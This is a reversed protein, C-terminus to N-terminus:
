YNIENTSNEKELENKMFREYILEHYKTLFKESLDKLVNQYGEFDKLSESISFANKYSEGERHLDIEEDISFNNVIEQLEKNVREPNYIDQYNEDFYISEIMNVGGNTWTEIQIENDMGNQSSIHVKFDFYEFTKIINDLIIKEKKTPIYKSTELNDIKINEDIKEGFTEKTNNICENYDSVLIQNPKLIYTGNCCVIKIDEDSLNKIYNSDSTYIYDGNNDRFFKFQNETQSYEFYPNGNKEIYPKEQSDATYTMVDDGYDFFREDFDRIMADFLLPEKFDKLMDYIARGHCDLGMGGNFEISKQVEFKNDTNKTIIFITGRHM